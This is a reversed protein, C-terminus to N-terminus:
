KLYYELFWKAFSAIGEDIPVRPAYGVASALASVDAHTEEVDGPQMPLFRKEARKGLAQELLEVVHLLREPQGRGINYIRWPASSAAPGADMGEPTPKPPQHLVRVTGEVIDDIFTWDRRHRGENYLDIPRGAMINTAFRQLAMDPRDWPGYVTFFRLGTAPLDYLHSYCHAMLENARKSAAYLSLPHDVADQESFPLKSNGGYVSSSSAYVLHRVELRRCEELINGFGVLNADVYSAPQELSHRVGAQAALHVVHDPRCAGFVDKMAKRDAVDIRFHTYRPHDLHRQLRAEKLRVDYYDNHNDVGVVEHGDELLRLVLASGIFGAAGTVLVKM